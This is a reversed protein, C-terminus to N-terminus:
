LAPDRTLFSPHDPFSVWPTLCMLASSVTGQEKFSPKPYGQTGWNFLPFTSSHCWHFLGLIPHLITNEKESSCPSALTSSKIMKPFLSTPPLLPFYIFTVYHGTRGFIRIYFIVGPISLLELGLWIVCFVRFM